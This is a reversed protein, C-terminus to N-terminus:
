ATELRVLVDLRSPVVVRRVEDRDRDRDVRARRLVAAQFDGRAMVPATEDPLAPFGERRALEFADPEIGVRHRGAVDHEEVTEHRVLRLRVPSRSLPAVDIESVVARAVAIM